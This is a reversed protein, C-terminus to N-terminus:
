PKAGGSAPPRFSVKRTNQTEPATIKIDVGQTLSVDVDLRKGSSSNFVTTCTAGAALKEVCETEFKNYAGKLKALEIWGLDTGAVGKDKLLEGKNDAVVDGMAKFFKSAEEVKPDVPPKPDAM